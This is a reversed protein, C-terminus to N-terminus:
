KKAIIFTCASKVVSSLRTSLGSNPTSSSSHGSPFLHHLPVSGKWTHRKQLAPASPSSIGWCGAHPQLESRVPAGTSHEIQTNGNKKINLTFKAKTLPLSCLYKPFFLHFLILFINNYTLIGASHKGRQVLSYLLWRFPGPYFQLRVGTLEGLETLTSHGNLNGTCAWQWPEETLSSRSLCLPYCYPFFALDLIVYTSSDLIYINIRIM